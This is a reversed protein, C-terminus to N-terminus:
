NKILAFFSSCNPVYVTFSPVKHIASAAKSEQLLRVDIVRGSLTDRILLPAKSLQERRSDMVKPAFLLSVLMPALAKKSQVLREAIM